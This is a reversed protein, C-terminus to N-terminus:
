HQTNFLNFIKLRQVEKLMSRVRTLYGLLAAWDDFPVKKHKKLPEMLEDILKSPKAFLGGLTELIEQPSHAFVLFEATGKSVCNKKIQEALSRDSVGHGYDKIYAMLEEKFLYFGRYSDKFKPWAPTALKSQGRALVSLLDAVATETLALGTQGSTTVAAAPSAVFADQWRPQPPPFNPSVGVDQRLLEKKKKGLKRLSQEAQQLKQGDQLLPNDDLYVAAAEMERMRASLQQHVEEVEDPDNGQLADQAATLVRDVARSAATYKSSQQKAAANGTCKAQLNVHAASLRESAATCADLDELNVHNAQDVAVDSQKRLPELADSLGECYRM